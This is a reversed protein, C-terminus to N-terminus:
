FSVINNEDYEIWQDDGEHDQEYIFPIIKRHTFDLIYFAHTCAFGNDSIKEHFTLIDYDTLYQRHKKKEYEILLDTDIRLEGDDRTYWIKNEPNSIFGPDCIEKLIKYFASNDGASSEYLFSDKTRHITYAKEGYMTKKSSLVEKADKENVSSKLWEAIIKLKEKTEM